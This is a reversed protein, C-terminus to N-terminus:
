SNLKTKFQRILRSTKENLDEIAKITSFDNKIMEKHEESQRSMKLRQDVSNRRHVPKNLQLMRENVDYVFFKQDFWSSRGHLPALEMFGERNPRENFQSNYNTRSLRNSNKYISNMEYSTEPQKFLSTQPRNSAQEIWRRHALVESKYTDRVMAM